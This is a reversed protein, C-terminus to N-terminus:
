QVTVVPREEELFKLPDAVIRFYDPLLDASSQAAVRLSIEPPLPFEQGQAHLQILEAHTQIFCRRRPQRLADSMRNYVAELREGRLNGFSLSVFDCPCVDGSPDIFFHCTGACCGFLEPSEIENFACVKPGRGRGNIKRHFQRLRAVHESGLLKEQSDHTLRGCPMPEVLRLEHLNLRSALDYLRRYEGSEVMERDAV